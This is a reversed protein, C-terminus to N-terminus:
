LLQKIRIKEQNSHSTHLQVQNRSMLDILILVSSQGAPPCTLHSSTVVSSHKSTIETHSWINGHWNTLNVVITLSVVANHGCKQRVNFSFVGHKQRLPFPLSIFERLALAARSSTMDKTNKELFKPVKPCQNCAVEETKSVRNVQANCGTSWYSFFHILYLSLSNTFAKKLQLFTKM